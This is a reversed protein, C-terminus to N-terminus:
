AKASSPLILSCVFGFDEQRFWSTASVPIGTKTESRASKRDVQNRKQNKTKFKQLKRTLWSTRGQIGTNELFELNFGPLNYLKKLFFSM